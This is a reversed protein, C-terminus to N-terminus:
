PMIAEAYNATSTAKTSPLLMRVALSHALLGKQECSSPKTGVQLRMDHQPPMTEPSPM